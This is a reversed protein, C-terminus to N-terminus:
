TKSSPATSHTEIYSQLIELRRRFLEDIQNRLISDENLTNMLGPVTESIVSAREIMQGFDENVKNNLVIVDERIEHVNDTLERLNDNLQSINSNISGIDIEVRLIIDRQIWAAIIIAITPVAIEVLMQWSM